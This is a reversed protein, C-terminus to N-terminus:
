RTPKGRALGVVKSNLVAGTALAILDEEYTSQPDKKGRSRRRLSGDQVQKSGKRTQKKSRARTSSLKRQYETVLQQEALADDDLHEEILSKVSKLPLREPPIPRIYNIRTDEEDVEEQIMSIPAQHTPVLSLAPASAPAPAPPGQTPSIDKRTAIYNGTPVRLDQRPAPEKKPIRWSAADMLGPYPDISVSNSEPGAYFVFEFSGPKRQQAPPRWQRIKLPRTPANDRDKQGTRAQLEQSTQM